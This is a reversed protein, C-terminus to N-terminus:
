RTYEKSAYLKEWYGNPLSDINIPRTMDNCRQIHMLNKMIKKM